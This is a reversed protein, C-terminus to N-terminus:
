PASWEDGAPCPEGAPWMQECDVCGAALQVLNEMDLHQDEGRGAGRLSEATVAYTAIVIWRHKGRAKDPMPVTRDARFTQGTSRARHHDRM